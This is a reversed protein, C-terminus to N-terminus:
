AGRWCPERWAGPLQRASAVARAWCVPMWSPRSRPRPTQFFLVYAGITGRTAEIGVGCGESIARECKSGELGLRPPALDNPEIFGFRDEPAKGQGAGAPPACGLAHAEGYTRQALTLEVAVFGEFALRPSARAGPAPAGATHQEADQPRALIAGGFDERFNHRGKIGLLQPLIHVLYPRGEACGACLDHHDDLAAPDVPRVLEVGSEGVVVLLKAEMAERGMTPVGEVGDFAEPPDHLVGDAGSATTGIQQLEGLAGPPHQHCM